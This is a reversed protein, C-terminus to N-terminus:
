SLVYQRFGQSFRIDGNALVWCAEVGDLRNVVSRHQEAVTGITAKSM